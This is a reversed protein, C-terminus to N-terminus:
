SPPLMWTPRRGLFEGNELDHVAFLGSGFKEYDSRIKLLSAESDEITKVKGLGLYRVVEQDADLRQMLAVDGETFPRLRLRKTTLETLRM